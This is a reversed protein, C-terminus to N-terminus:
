PVGALFALCMYKKGEGGTALTYDALDVPTSLGLCVALPTDLISNIRKTADLSWYGCGGCGLWSRRTAYNNRYLCVENEQAESSEAKCVSCQECVSPRRGGQM